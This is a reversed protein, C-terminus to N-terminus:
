EVYVIREGQRLKTILRKEAILDQGERESNAERVYVGVRWEVEHLRWRVQLVEARGLRRVGARVEPCIM